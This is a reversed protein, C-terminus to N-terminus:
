RENLYAWEGQERSEISEQLLRDIEEQEERLWDAQARMSEDVRQPCGRLVPQGEPFTWMFRMGKQIGCGKLLRAPLDIPVRAGSIEAWCRAQEEKYFELTCAMSITNAGNRRPAKSISRPITRGLTVGSQIRAVRKLSPVPRHVSRDPAIMKKLAFPM